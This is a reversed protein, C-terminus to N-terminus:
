RLCPMDKLGFCCWEPAGPLVRKSLRGVYFRKWHVGSKRRSHFLLRPSKEVHWSEERGEKQALLTKIPVMMKPVKSMEPVNRKLIKMAQNVGCIPSFILGKM